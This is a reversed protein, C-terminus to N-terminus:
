ELPYPGDWVEPWVEIAPLGLSAPHREASLTKIYADNYFWYGDRGWFLCMQHRSNLMLRIATRLAQPWGDPKGLPHAMWDHARMLAGMEGGDALFTVDLM